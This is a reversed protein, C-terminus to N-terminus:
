KAGLKELGSELFELITTRLDLIKATLTTKTDDDSSTRATKWALILAPYIGKFNKAFVAWERYEKKTIANADYLQNYMAATSVFTDGVEKVLDGSIALNKAACGALAFVLVLSMSLRRLYRGDM